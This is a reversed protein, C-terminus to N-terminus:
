NSTGNKRFVSTAPCANTWCNSLTSAHFTNTNNSANKSTHLCLMELSGWSPDSVQAHTVLLSFITSSNVQPFKLCAYDASMTISNSLRTVMSGKSVDRCLALVFSVHNQSLRVTQSFALLGPCTRCLHRLRFSLLCPCFSKQPRQALLLFNMRQRREQWGLLASLARPDSNKGEVDFLFLTRAVNLITHLGRNLIKRLVWPGLCKREFLLLFLRHPELRPSLTPTQATETM